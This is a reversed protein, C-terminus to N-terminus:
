HYAIVEFHIFPADVDGRCAHLFAKAAWGAHGGDGNGVSRHSHHFLALADLRAHCVSHLFDGLLADAAVVEIQRLDEIIPSRSMEIVVGLGRMHQIRHMFGCADDHFLSDVVDYLAM